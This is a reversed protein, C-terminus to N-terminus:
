YNFDMASIEKISEIEIPEASYNENRTSTIKCKIIDKDVRFLWGILGCEVDDVVYIVKVSEGLLQLLRKRNEPTDKSFDYHQTETQLAKSSGM